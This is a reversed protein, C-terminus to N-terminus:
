SNDKPKGANNNSQASNSDNIYVAVKLSKDEDMNDMKASIRASFVDEWGQDLIEFIFKSDEESLVGIAYKKPSKNQEVKKEYKLCAVHGEDKFPYDHVDPKVPEGPKCVKLKVGTKLDDWVELAQFHYLKTVNCEKFFKDM